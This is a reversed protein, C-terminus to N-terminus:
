EKKDRAAFNAEIPNKREQRYYEIEQKCKQYKKQLKKLLHRTEKYLAKANQIQGVLDEHSERSQRLRSEAQQLKDSLFGIEQKKNILTSRTELLEKKLGPM